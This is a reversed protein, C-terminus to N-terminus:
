SAPETHNRPEGSADSRCDTPMPNAALRQLPNLKRIANGNRSPRTSGIKMAPIFKQHSCEQSRADRNQRGGYRGLLQREVQAAVLQKGRGTFEIEDLRPEQRLELSTGRNGEIELQGQPHAAVIGDAAPGELTEDHAVVKPLFAEGDGRETLGLRTDGPQGGLVHRTPAQM